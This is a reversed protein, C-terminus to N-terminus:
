RSFPDDIPTSSRYRCERRELRSIAVPDELRKKIALEVAM